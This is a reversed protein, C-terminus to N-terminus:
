KYLKFPLFEKNDIIVTDGFEAGIFKLWRLSQRNGTWIYNAGYPEKGILNMAFRKGYTLLERRIKRIDPTGVMWINSFGYSPVCGFLCVPLNDYFLTFCSGNLRGHELADYTSVGSPVEELDQPRLRTSMYAVDVKQTYAVQFTSYDGTM